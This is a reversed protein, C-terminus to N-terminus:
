DLIGGSTDDGSGGGHSRIVNGGSKLLEVPEQNAVANIKFIRSRAKLAM